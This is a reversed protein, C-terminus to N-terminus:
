FQLAYDDTGKFSKIIDKGQFLPVYVYAKTSDMLKDILVASFVWKNFGLLTTIYFINM